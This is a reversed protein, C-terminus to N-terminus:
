FPVDAPSIAADVQPPQGLPSVPQAAATQAPTQGLGPNAAMARGGLSNANPQAPLEFDVRICDVTRGDQLQTKDPRLTIASGTWQEADRSGLLDCIMNANTKNLVLRKDTNEFDLVIKNGDQLTELKAGKIVLNARRKQLDDAKLFIGSATYTDNINLAM